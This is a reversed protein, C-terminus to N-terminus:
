SMFVVFLACWEPWAVHLLWLSDVTSDIFDISDIARSSLRASDVPPDFTSDISRTSRWNGHISRRARSSRNRPRFIVSDRLRLYLHSFICEYQLRIFIGSRSFSPGFRLAPFYLVRLIVSRFGIRRLVLGSGTQIPWATSQLMRCTRCFTTSIRM